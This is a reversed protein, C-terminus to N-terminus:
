SIDEPIAWDYMIDRIQSYDIAAGTTYKEGPLSGMPFFISVCDEELAIYEPKLAAAMQASTQDDAAFAAVLRSRVEAEPATFLDWISISEGTERDFYACLRTDTGLNGQVPEEVITVFCVVQEGFSCPYSQQHLRYGTFVAGTEQCSRYEAYAKELTAPIDYLLGQKEYYDCISAQVDEPLDQLSLYGVSVQLPSTTEEVVLLDTGNELRYYDWQDFVPERNWIDVSTGDSLILADEQTLVWNIQVPEDPKRCGTLLLLCLLLSILHKGNM